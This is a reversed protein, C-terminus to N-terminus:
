AGEGRHLRLATVESQLAELRQEVLSREDARFRHFPEAMFDDCVGLCSLACKVGKIFASPHRGIRYIADGV